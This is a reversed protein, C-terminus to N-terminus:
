FKGLKMKFNVPLLILLKKLHISDEVVLTTLKNLLLIFGYGLCRKIISHFMFNTYYFVFSIVIM